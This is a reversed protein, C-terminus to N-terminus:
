VHPDAGGHVVLAAGDWVYGPSQRPSPAGAASMPHWRDAVLDYRIGTGLVGRVSDDGGWCLLERGTWATAANARGGDPLPALRRWADEAPDYLAGDALTVVKGQRRRVGGFVLMVEGTWAAMAWARDEIPAVAIPRWEDAAVDYIAGSSLTRGEDAGGWILVETASITAAVAFARASPAGDLCM